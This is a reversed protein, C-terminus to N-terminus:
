LLTVPGTMGVPQWGQDKTWNYGPINEPSSKLYNGITTTVKVEITKRPAKALHEPIRYLHRGYWQCGLNEGNVTVESVGFVRGLDLMTFSSTDMDLKKQYFLHGAFARTTEDSALDFLTTFTREETAGNIHQMRVNWGTLEMGTSPIEPLAPVDKGTTHEDFVILQSSAPSLDITLTRAKGVAGPFRSREGTEADWLWPQGKSDPFEAQIVYSDVMSCNTIFFLDKGKATHRIQTVYPNPRDIIMYPKIGCQQQVNRFWGEINDTVPMDIQIGMEMMTNTENAIEDIAPAEVTFVRAAHNSKMAAITQRVKEDNTQHDRLGPAKYPEKGVFIVKGGNKVFAAIAEATAPQM